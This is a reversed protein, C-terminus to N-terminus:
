SGRAVKVRLEPNIDVKFLVHPDLLKQIAEGDRERMAEFVSRETAEPLPQGLAQLAEMVRGANAALPQNPVEAASLKASYCVSVAILIRLWLSVYFKPM